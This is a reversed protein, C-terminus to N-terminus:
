SSGNTTGCRNVRLNLSEWHAYVKQWRRKDADRSRKAIVGCPEDKTGRTIEELIWSSITALHFTPNRFRIVSGCLRCQFRIEFPVDSWPSGGITADDLEHGLKTMRRFDPSSLLDRRVLELNFSM